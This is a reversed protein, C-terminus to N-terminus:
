PCGGDQGAGCVFRGTFVTTDNAAAAAHLTGLVLVGLAAGAVLLFRARASVSVL